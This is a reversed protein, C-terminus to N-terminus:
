KCELEYRNFEYDMLDAIELPYQGWNLGKEFYDLVFQVAKLCQLMHVVEGKIAKAAEYNKAAGFEKQLAILEGHTQNYEKRRDKLGQIADDDWNYPCAGYHYRPAYYRKIKEDDNNKTDIVPM